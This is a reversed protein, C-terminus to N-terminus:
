TVKDFVWGILKTVVVGIAGGLGAVKVDRIASAKDIAHFKKMCADVRCNFADKIEGINKQTSDHSTKLAKFLYDLKAEQPAHEYLEQVDDLESM